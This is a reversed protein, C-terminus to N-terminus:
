AGGDQNGCLGCPCDEGGWDYGQMATAILSGAVQATPRKQHKALGRLSDYEEDSVWASITKM